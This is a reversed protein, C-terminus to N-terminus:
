ECTVTQPFSSLEVTKGLSDICTYTQGSRVTINWNNIKYSGNQDINFQCKNESYKALINQITSNNTIFTSGAECNDTDIEDSNLIGFNQNEEFYKEAEEAVRRLSETNALKDAKPRLSSNTFKSYITFIIFFFIFLAIVSLVSRLVKPDM